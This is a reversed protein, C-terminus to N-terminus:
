DGYKRWEHFLPRILKLRAKPNTERADLDLEAGFIDGFITPEQLYRTEATHHRQRGVASSEYYLAISCCSRQRPNLKCILRPNLNRIL